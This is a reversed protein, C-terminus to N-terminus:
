LYYRNEPPTKYSILLTDYYCFLALELVDQPIYYVIILIRNEGLPKCLFKGFNMFYLFLVSFKAEWQM